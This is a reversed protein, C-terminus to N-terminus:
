NIIIGMIIIFSHIIVVYESISDLAKLNRSLKGSEELRVMSQRNEPSLFGFNSLLQRTTEYYTAKTLTQPKEM